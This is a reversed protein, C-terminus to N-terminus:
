DEGTHGVEFQAKDSCAKCGAGSIPAFVNSCHRTAPLGYDSIIHARVGAM